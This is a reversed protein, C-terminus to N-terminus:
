TRPRRPTSRPPTRTPSRGRTRTSAWSTAAGTQMSRDDATTLDGKAPPHHDYIIVDVDTDRAVRGLEGIRGPDRTDVMVLHDVADIDLDRLDIFDLFGQHMGHFERVNRNQSGLFVGRAGPFRKVAAVTAAYADFDPNAHGVAIRM